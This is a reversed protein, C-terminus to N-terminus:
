APRPPGGRGRGGGFLRGIQAGVAGFTQGVRLVWALAAVSALLVGAVVALPVGLCGCGGPGVACGTQRFQPPPAGARHDDISDLLEPELVEGDRSPRAAPEMFAAPMGCGHCETAAPPLRSGCRPCVFM